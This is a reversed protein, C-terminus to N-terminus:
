TEYPLEQNVEKYGSIDVFLKKNDLLNEVAEAEKLEKKKNYDLRVACAEKNIIDCTEKLIPCWKKASQYYECGQGVLLIYAKQALKEIREFVPTEGHNGRKKKDLVKQKEIELKLQEIVKVAKIDAKLPEMGEKM